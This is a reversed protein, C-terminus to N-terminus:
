FIQCSCWAHMAVYRKMLTTSYGRRYGRLVLAIVVHVVVTVVATIVVAGM